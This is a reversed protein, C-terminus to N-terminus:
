NLKQQGQTYIKQLEPSRKLVHMNRFSGHKTPSHVRGGYGAYM